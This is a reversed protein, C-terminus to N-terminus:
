QLKKAKIINYITRITKRNAKKITFIHEIFQLQM